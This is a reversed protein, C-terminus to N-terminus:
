SRIEFLTDLHTIQFLTILDDNARLFVIRNDAHITRGARQAGVLVGLGAADIYGTGALDLQVERAGAEFLEVIKQRFEKRNGVLLQDPGQLVAVGDVIDISIPIPLPVAM